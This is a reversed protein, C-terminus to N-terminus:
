KVEAVITIAIGVPILTNLQIAVNHPPAIQSRVGSNKATPKKNKNVTPPKVPTIRDLAPISIAKCSM